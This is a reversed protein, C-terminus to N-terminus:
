STVVNYLKQCTLIHRAWWCTSWGTCDSSKILGQTSLLM